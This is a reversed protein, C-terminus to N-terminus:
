IETMPRRMANRMKDLDNDNDIPKEALGATLADALRLFLGQTTLKANPNKELEEAQILLFDIVKMWDMQKM